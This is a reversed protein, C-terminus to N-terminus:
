IAVLGIVAVKLVVKWDLVALLVVGDPFSFSPADSSALSVQSAACCMKCAMLKPENCFLTECDAADDDDLPVDLPAAGAGAIALRSM